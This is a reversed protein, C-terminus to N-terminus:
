WVPVTGANTWTAARILTSYVRTHAPAQAIKSAKTILAHVSTAVRLTSVSLLGFAIISRSHVNMLMQCCLVAHTENILLLFSCM